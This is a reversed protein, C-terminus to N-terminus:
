DSGWVSWWVGMNAAVILDLMKFGEDYIVLKGLKARKGRNGGGAKEQGISLDLRSDGESALRPALQDPVPSAHTEGGDDSSETTSADLQPRPPLVPPGEEDSPYMAAYSTPALRPPLPPRIIKEPSLKNRIHGLKQKSLRGSGTVLAKAANSSAQPNFITSSPLNFRLESVITSDQSLHGAEGGTNASIPNPLTHRCRLAKGGTNTSFKCRGGWPSTFVYGKPESDPPDETGRVQFADDRADGVSNGNAGTTVGRTDSIDSQARKHQRTRTWFSSGEMCLERVFGSSSVVQNRRTESTRSTASLINPGAFSKGIGSMNGEYNQTVPAARFQGYGPTSLLISIDFYPKKSPPLNSGRQEEGVLTGVNWQAGSSPDRRIITISFKKRPTEVRDISTFHSSEPNSSAAASISTANEHVDPNLRREGGPLPKRDVSLSLLPRPGLPKRQVRENLEDQAQPRAPPVPRREPLLPKRELVSSLATNSDVLGPDDQHDVESQQSIDLSPGTTEPLPKRSLPTRPAEELESEEPITEQSTALLGADAETNLHLYYLSSAVDEATVNKPQPKLPALVLDIQQTLM